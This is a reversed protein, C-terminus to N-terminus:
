RDSINTNVLLSVFDLLIHRQSNIGDQMVTLMSPVIGKYCKFVKCMECGNEFVEARTQLRTLNIQSQLLVDLTEIIENELTKKEM